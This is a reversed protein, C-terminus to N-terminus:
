LTSPKAPHHTCWENVAGDSIAGSNAFSNGIAILSKLSEAILFRYFKTVAALYNVTAAPAVNLSKAFAIATDINLKQDHAFSNFQRLAVSYARITTPPRNAIRLYERFREIWDQLNADSSDTIGTKISELGNSM